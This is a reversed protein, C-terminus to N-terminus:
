ALEPIGIRGQFLLVPTCIAPLHSLLEIGTNIWSLLDDFVFERDQFSHKTPIEFGSFKQNLRFFDSIFIITKINVFEELNDPNFNEIFGM